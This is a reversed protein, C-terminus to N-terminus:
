KVSRAANESLVKQYRAELTADLSDSSAVVLTALNALLRQNQEYQQQHIWVELGGMKAAEMLLGRQTQRALNGSWQEAEKGGFYQNVRLKLVENPSKDGFAKSRTNAANIMSLSYAPISLMSDKRNKQMMYTEGAPTAGADKTLAQDPPGIVHQIYATRAETTLSNEEAPEFLLAANTDGGPLTSLSCLGANAEAETCFKDRHQKLRQQMAQGTSSVLRGPSADLEGVSAKAKAAMTSFAIDMSKNKAVTGCPDFGQGTAANFDLYAQAVASNQQQARVANVLQESTQRNNDAVVNASLAEQKTAIAVASIIQEFKYTMQSGFSTGFAGINASVTGTLLEIQAITWAEAPGFGYLAGYSVSSLMTSGVVISALKLRFNM